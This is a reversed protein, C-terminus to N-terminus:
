EEASQLWRSALVQEIDPRTEAQFTFLGELLECLAPSLHDYPQHFQRNLIKMVLRPEYDDHFPLTGIVMAYLIVGLSWVDTSPSCLPRTARVQEPSCYALSGGVDAEYNQQYRAICESCRVEAAGDASYPGEADDEEGCSRCPLRAPQSLGFDALKVGFHADLLVNDLKLDQHVVGARQHLYRVAEVLQHFLPRAEAETLGPQGYKTIHNLLSGNPCLDSFLYTAYPTEHVDRLALIHEHDLRRWLSVEHQLLSQVCANSGDRTDGADKRVVKVALRHSGHHHWRAPDAPVAERVVSFGGHGLLDGLVYNGVIQGADDPQLSSAATPSSALSSAFELAPSMINSDPPSLFPTTATRKPGVPQSRGYAATTQARHLRTVGGMPHTAGTATAPVAPLSAAHPSAEVASRISLSGFPTGSALGLSTTQIRPPRTALPAPVSTAPASSTPSTGFQTAFSASPSPSGSSVKRASQRRVFGAFGKSIPIAKPTALPSATEPSSCRAPSPSPSPPSARRSQPLPQTMTCSPPSTCFSSPAPSTYPYQPLPSIYAPLLQIFQRNFDFLGPALYPEPNAYFM